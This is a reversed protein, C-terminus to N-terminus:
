TWFPPCYDSPSELGGECPPSLSLRPTRGCFDLGSPRVMSRSLSSRVRKTPLWLRDNPGGPREAVEIAAAVLTAYGAAPEAGAPHAGTDDVAVFTRSLSRRQKILAHSVLWRDLSPEGCSFGEVEHHETLPELRM